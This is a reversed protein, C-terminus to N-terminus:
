APIPPITFLFQGISFSQGVQLAAEPLILLADPNSQIGCLGDMRPLTTSPATGDDGPGTLRFYGATGANQILLTWTRNNFKQVFPGTRAFTLGPGGPSESVVGMLTGNVPADPSGPQAGTYVRISGGDFIQEFSEPGLIRAKYGTSTLLSM